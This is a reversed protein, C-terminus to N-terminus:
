WWVQCPRRSLPPKGNYLRRLGSCQTVTTATSACCQQKLQMDDVKRNRSSAQQLLVRRAAAGHTDDWEDTLHAPAPAIEPANKGGPYGEKAAAACGM